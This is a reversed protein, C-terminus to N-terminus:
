ILWVSLLLHRPPDGLCVPVIYFNTTPCTCVSENLGNRDIFVFDFDIPADVQRTRDIKRVVPCNPAHEKQVPIESREV